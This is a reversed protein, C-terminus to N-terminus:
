SWVKFRNWISITYILCVWYLYTSTIISIVSHTMIRMKGCKYLCDPWTIIKMEFYLQELKAVDNASVTGDVIRDEDNLHKMFHTLIWHNTERLMWQIQITKLTAITIQDHVTAEGGNSDFITLNSKLMKFQKRRCKNLEDVSFNFAEACCLALKSEFETIQISLEFPDKCISCLRCLSIIKTGLFITFLFKIKTFLWFTKPKIQM